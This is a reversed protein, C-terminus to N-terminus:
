QVREQADRIVRAPLKPALAAVSERLERATASDAFPKPPKPTESAAANGAKQAEKLQEAKEELFSRMADPDLILPSQFLLKLENFQECGWQILIIKNEDDMNPMLVEMLAIVARLKVDDVKIQESPPEKLLSPWKATYSNAWRYFAAAFTMKGYQDPFDEQILKYFDPTWARRQVIMDFFNYLPAMEERIGDIFRAVYKADETGEGFGEAFTEQLLIKAPMDGGTAINEIINKRAITYPADLNQLNLSEIKESEGISIVNDTEAEKLIARKIGAIKSMVNDIISGPSKLMAVLVGVKRVVLDDTIMTQVFSKLPYLPRQYVSRGVFGFAAQTYDIYVPEENLIIRTRSRHYTSGNVRISGSTKNFDMANPNQSLVLSGATNLPDFVNFSIDKKWLDELPLAPSGLPANTDVGDVLMAVSAVGYARSLKMTNRIIKDAGIAEWEKQFAEKCREEPSDPIAIERKDSQALKIPAEAMKAGIPHLTLIVKCMQYSPQEGPVIADCMLLEQLGNGVPTGGLSIRTM